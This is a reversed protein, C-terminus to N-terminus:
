AEGPATARAMLRAHSETLCIDLKRALTTVHPERFLDSHGCPVSYIELEGSVVEGWGLRPDSYSAGVGLHTPILMVRGPYIGPRYHCVAFFEMSNFDRFRAPINGTVKLLFKYLVEWARLKSVALRTEILDQVYAIRKAATLLHLTELHFRIRRVLRHWQSSPANPDKVLPNPNEADFLVLLGVTEGKNLLQRAIEYAVVGDACWGGLFYPGQPQIDRLKGALVSAMDELKFPVPLSNTEQRTLGLSLFPQHLGMQQALTRFLPGAGVCFFPPRSGFPQIPVKSSTEDGGRWESLHAAMSEITPAQLLHALSLRKGFTKEIQAILRVALFSQGGIDFFNDHIGAQDVGLVERWIQALKMELETRPPAFVEGVDSRSTGPPPLAKRDLKGTTTLPFSTVFEFKTPLMPAPLSEALFGRLEHPTPSQGEKRIVYAILQKDGPRDDDRVAVACAALAPHRGLIVEIEGLEIRVGRIKVQDDLRGLCELNRDKLYRIRDGTKYLRSGAEASFPNQIFREGTLEPRNVYGRALGDGGIYLEGAEGIPLPQMDSDLVYCQTNGIPVGICIPEDASNVRYATSWVTTETPGYLNWVSPSRKLLEKALEPPLSEGTSHVRLNRSGQWGSEVLLRLISPTAVLVTAGCNVLGEQLRKGGAATDQDALVLRAGAMLPLFLEAAAVDFALPTISLLIDNCTIELKPQVSVLLNVLSRHAIEVGKPVGTSGSTYTVYVLNDPGAPVALDVSSQESIAGCESDLWVFGTQLHSLRDRLKEQSVVLTLKSDKEIYALREAPYEPDLPLYAGGAKLIGLIGMVMDVSRAVSIGVLVDPGVGRQQLYRALQNSRSNLERYSLQRTDDTVAVSEPRRTAQAQFLEHVCCKPYASRTSTWEVLLQRRESETLMPLASIREMPNRAAATLRSESVSRRVTDLFRSGGRRSPFEDDSYENAKIQTSLRKPKLGDCDPSYCQAVATLLQFSYAKM